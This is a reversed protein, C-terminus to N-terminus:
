DLLLAPCASCRTSCLGAPAHGDSPAEQMPPQHQSAPMHSTCLLAARALRAAAAAVLLQHVAQVDQLGERLELQLHRQGLGLHRWHQLLDAGLALVVQLPPSPRPGLTNQAASAYHTDWPPLGSQWPLHTHKRRLHPHEPSLTTTRLDAAQSSRMEHHPGNHTPHTRNSPTRNSAAPLAPSAKISSTPAHLLPHWRYLLLLLM